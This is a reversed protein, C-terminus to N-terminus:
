RSGALTRLSRLTPNFFALLHAILVEEYLLQRNGHAEAVRLTYLHRALMRIYKGRGTTDRAM